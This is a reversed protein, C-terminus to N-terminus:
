TLVGTGPLELRYRHLKRCRDDESGYRYLERKKPLSYMLEVIRRAIAVIAMAAGRRLKIREFVDRFVQGASSRIAAWAAQVAARRVISIGVRTIHGYRTTEGSSDVCPVLGVFNSVQSANAFRSGNGVYALFAMATVPGVGPVSLLITAEEKHERLLGTILDGTEYLHTEVEELIEVVQNAPTEHIASLRKVAMRRAQSTALLRKSLTTIGDSVFLAHLHNILRTREQKPFVQAASLRRMEEDRESPLAVAPM